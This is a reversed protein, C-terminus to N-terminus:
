TRRSSTLLLMALAAVAFGIWSARTVTMALAFVLGAVALVLLLGTLSGKQKLALFIGLALSAILQLVEAYTVAHGAVSVSNNWRMQERCYSHARCSSNRCGNLAISESKPQQLEPLSHPPWNKRIELQRAM